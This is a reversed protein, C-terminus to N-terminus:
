YAQLMEEAVKLSGETPETGMMRTLEKTREVEQLGRVSVATSGDKSEKEVFLHRDAKSAIPALHTICLIQRNQSLAKIKAGVVHATKGGIGSDIEDFVMADVVDVRALVAKLALMIRSIEGGSAVQKLTKLPEGANTSLMFRVQDWGSSTIASEDDQPYAMRLVNPNETLDIVSVEAEFRATEMALQRLEVSVEGSLQKAAKRRKRSLETAMKGLSLTLEQFKAELAAREQEYNELKELERKSVDLFGKIEDITAGYKKKLNRILDLRAEIEELRGPEAELREHYSRVKGSLDEFIYAVDEAQNRAEALEPDREAMEELAGQIKGVQALVGAANESDGDLASLISACNENLNEFNRLRRRESALEEEEGERLQASAIEDTQFRLQEVLRVREREQEALDDHQRRVRRWEEFTEKLEESQGQLEGFADLIGIYTKPDLLTQHEHQGHLDVLRKGIEQLTKLTTTSNNVYCRNKGTTNLTRKLILTEEMDLGSEEFFPLLRQHCPSTPELEFVAEVTAQSCGQRVLDGSAREGLVMSLADVVITKGAGTEGTLVNLNKGFQIHASDILVFDKIIIEALM